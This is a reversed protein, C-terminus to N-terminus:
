KTTPIIIQQELWYDNSSIEHQIQPYRALIMRLNKLGLGHANRLSNRNNSIQQLNIAKEKMSNGIVIWQQKNKAFLSINVKKDNSQKAANIANDLLNSLIRILDLPAIEKTFKIPQAVEITVTLGDSLATFAKNYILSKVDLNLVNELQSLVSAKQTIARESPVLVQNLVRKAEDINNNELAGTLSYLVNKYDHRFHRMEDYMEEIHSTYYQLNNVEFQLSTALSKYQYYNTFAKIAALAVCGYGVTIGITIPLKAPHGGGNVMFEYILFTLMLINIIWALIPYPIAVTNVYKDFLKQTGVIIGYAILFSVIIKVNGLVYYVFNYNPIKVSLNYLNTIISGFCGFTILLIFNAYIFQTGVINFPVRRHIVFYYIILLMIVIALINGILSIAFSYLLGAIIYYWWKIHVHSLRSFLLLYASGYLLNWVIASSFWYLPSPFFQPLLAPINFFQM